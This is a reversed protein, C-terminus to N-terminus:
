LKFQHESWFFVSLFVKVYFKGGLNIQKLFYMMELPIGSESLIQGARDITKNRIKLV